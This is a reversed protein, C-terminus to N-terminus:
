DNIAWEWAHGQELQQMLLTYALMVMHM